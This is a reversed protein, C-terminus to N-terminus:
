KTEFDLMNCEGPYIGSKLQGDTQIMAWAMGSTNFAVGVEGDKTVAIAGGSGGVRDTMYQLTQEVAAQASVGTTFMYIYVFM